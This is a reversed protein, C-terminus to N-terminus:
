CWNDKIIPLKRCWDDDEEEVPLAMVLVKMLAAAGLSAYPQWEKKKSGDSYDSIGRIICFSEKRNGEISEMIAEFGSDVAKLENLMALQSRINYDKSLMPGTGICGYHVIPSGPHTSRLSGKTVKPHDVEYEEGNIVQYARDNEAPPRQFRAEGGELELLGEKMYEALSGYLDFNKRTSDQFSSIIDLLADSEPSWKLTSFKINDKADKQIATTAFYIPGRAMQPKSLVVDGMRVHQSDDELHIIGGGVGVLFVHEIRGFTGSYFVLRIEFLWRKVNEHSQHM